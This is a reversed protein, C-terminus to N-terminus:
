ENSNKMSFPSVSVAAGFWSPLTVPVAAKEAWPVFLAFMRAELHVAEVQQGHLLFFVDSCFISRMKQIVLKQVGFFANKFIEM